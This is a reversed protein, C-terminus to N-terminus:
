LATLTVEKIGVLGCLSESENMDESENSALSLLNDSPSYHVLDVVFPVDRKNRQMCSQNGLALM